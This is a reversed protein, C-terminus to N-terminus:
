SESINKLKLLKTMIETWPILNRETRRKLHLFRFIDFFEHKMTNSHCLPVATADCPLREWWRWSWPDPKNIDTNDQSYIIKVNKPVPNLSVKNTTVTLPISQDM